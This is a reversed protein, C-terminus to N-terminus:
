YLIQPTHQKMESKLNRCNPEWSEVLRWFDPGHNHHITHALEHYMVYNICRWPLQILYLSLTINKESSCSGWRSKLDKIEIKNVTLNHNQAKKRLLPILLEESEIQLTKKILNSIKNQIDPDTVNQNAPVKILLMNQRVSSSLRNNNSTILHLTYNKGIKQGNKIIGQPKLNSLIWDTKNVTYDYAVRFPVWNPLSVKINSGSIRIKINKASKYKYFNVEGLKPITFTKKSM